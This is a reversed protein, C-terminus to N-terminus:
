LTFRPSFDPYNISLYHAPHTGPLCAGVIHADQDGNAFM